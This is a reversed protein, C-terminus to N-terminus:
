AARFNVPFTDPQTGPLGFVFGQHTKNVQADLRQIGRLEYWGNFVNSKLFQEFTLNGMAQNLSQMEGSIQFQERSKGNIHIAFVPTKGSKELVVEVPKSDLGRVIKYGEINRDTDNEWRSIAEEISPKVSKNEGHTKRSFIKRLAEINM